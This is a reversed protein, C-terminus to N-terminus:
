MGHAVKGGSGAALHAKLSRRLNELAYRMRSKATNASIGVITSIEEFTLETKERLLFVERQEDPLSALAVLVANREEQEAALDHTAPRDDALRERLPVSGDVGTAEKGQADNELSVPDRRRKRARLHDMCVNRTVQFLWTTFRSRGEFRSAYRIVKLWVDQYVDDANPAAGLFRRVFAYVSPGHRSVLRDM